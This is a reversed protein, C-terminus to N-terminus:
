IQQIALDLFYELAEGDTKFFHIGNTCVKENNTDLSDAYVMSGVVYNAKNQSIMSRAEKIDSYDISFSIDTGEDSVIECIKAFTMNQISKVLAKNCRMKNSHRTKIVIADDPIELTILCNKGNAYGVKYGTM